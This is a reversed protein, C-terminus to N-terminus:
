HSPPVIRAEAPHVLPQDEPFGGMMEAHFENFLSMQVMEWDFDERSVTHHPDGNKLRHLLASYNLRGKLRTSGSVDVSLFLRLQSRLIEEEDM